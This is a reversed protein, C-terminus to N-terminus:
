KRRLGLQGHYEAIVNGSQRAEVDVQYVHPLESSWTCPDVVIAEAVGPQQPGLDRFAFEAPLTRALECFPGRMTGRVAIPERDGREDHVVADAVYRAYVHAQVDNVDGIAIDITGLM